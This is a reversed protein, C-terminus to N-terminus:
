AIFNRGTIEVDHPDFFPVVGFQDNGTIKYILSRNPEIRINLHEDGGVFAELPLQDLGTLSETVPYKQELISLVRRYNERAEQWGLGRSSQSVWGLERACDELRECAPGSFTQASVKKGRGDILSNLLPDRSTFDIRWCLFGKGGGGEEQKRAGALCEPEKSGVQENQL